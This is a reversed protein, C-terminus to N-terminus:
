KPKQLNNTARLQRCAERMEITFDPSIESWTCDIRIVDGKKPLSLFIIPIVILFAIVVVAVEITERKPTYPM